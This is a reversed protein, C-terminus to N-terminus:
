HIMNKWPLPSHRRPPYVKTPGPVEKLKIGHRKAVSHYVQKADRAAAAPISLVNFQLHNGGKSKFTM